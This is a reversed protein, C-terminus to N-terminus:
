ASNVSLQHLRFPCIQHAVSHTLTPAPHWIRTVMGVALYAHKRACCWQAVAALPRLFQRVGLFTDKWYGSSEQSRDGRRVRSRRIKCFAPKAASATTDFVTYMYIM